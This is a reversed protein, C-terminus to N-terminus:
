TYIRTTVSLYMPIEAVASEVGDPLSRGNPVGNAGGTSM